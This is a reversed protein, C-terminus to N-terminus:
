DGSIFYIEGQRLGTPIYTDILIYELYLSLESKSQLLRLRVADCEHTIFDNRDSSAFTSLANCSWVAATEPPTPHTFSAGGGFLVIKSKFNCYDGVVSIVHIVVISVQFEVWGVYIKISLFVFADLRVHASM